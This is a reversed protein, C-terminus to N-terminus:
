SEYDQGNSKPDTVRVQVRSRNESCIEPHEQCISKALDFSDEACFIFRNSEYVQLMNYSQVDELTLPLLKSERDECEHFYRNERMILLSKSNLPFAIEIGESALGNSSLHSRRVVPHDSTFLVQGTDNVGIMCIHNCFIALIQQYYDLIAKGHIVALGDDYIHSLTTNIGDLILSQIYSTIDEDLQISNISKFQNIRELIESKLIDKELPQVAQYMEVPEEPDL